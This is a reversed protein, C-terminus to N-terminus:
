THSCLLNAVPNTTSAGMLHPLSLEQRSVLAATPAQISRAGIIWVFVTQLVPYEVSLLALGRAYLNLPLTSKARKLLCTLLFHDQFGHRRQRKQVCFSQAM